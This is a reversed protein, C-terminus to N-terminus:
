RQDSTLAVSANIASIPALTKTLILDFEIKVSGPVQKGKIGKQTLCLPQPQWATAGSWIHKFYNAWIKAPTACLCFGLIFSSNSSHHFKFKLFFVKKFWVLKALSNKLTMKTLPWSVYFCDDVVTLIQSGFDAMKDVLWLNMTIASMFCLNLM